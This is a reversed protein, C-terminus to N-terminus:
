SVIPRVNISLLNALKSEARSGETSCSGSTSCVGCSAACSGCNECDAPNASSESPMKGGNYIEGFVEEYLSKTGKFSSQLLKADEEGRMGLYPFHHVFRGFANDCDQAYKRTDLIHAHWFEDIERSPVVPVESQSAILYLFRKYESEMYDAKVRSWGHGEKDDMLKFKIPRLDIDLIKRMLENRPGYEVQSNSM